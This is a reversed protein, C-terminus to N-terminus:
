SPQGEIGRLATMLAPLRPKTWGKDLIANNSEEGLMNTGNIPYYCWSIEPNRELYSVLIRFWQGESGHKRASVCQNSSRIPYTWRTHPQASNCTDFEGLWIPVQVPSDTLIYAWNRYFVRVLSAYSTKRNFQAMGCCKWPGWEHPSYVLQHPIRFQVPDGAVGKLISGWWYAEVGHKANPDPYVQVGEVFLLLRPNIRQVANGATEAAAVWDSRPRWLRSLKGCLAPGCRGWTAGRTLYDKLTWAPGTHDTHPENRLDFGIVNPDGRYRKALTVWDQIWEKETYGDAAWTTESARRTAPRGGLRSDNAVQTAPRAKSFHNDLIIMLNLSQAARVVRDLLQLPHLHPPVDGHNQARLWRSAIRIRSNSGVLQDSLPIRISNFGLRAIEQLIATYPRINLGALAFSTTQM